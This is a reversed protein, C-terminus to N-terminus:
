CGVERDDSVRWRIAARELAAEPAHHPERFDGWAEGGVAAMALQQRQEDHLKAQSEIVSVLEQMLPDCEDLENQMRESVAQLRKVAEVLDAERESRIYREATIGAIAGVLGSILLDIM